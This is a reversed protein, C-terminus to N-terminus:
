AVLEPYIFVQQVRETKIFAAFEKKLFRVTTHYNMKSAAYPEFFQAAIENKNLSEDLYVQLQEEDLILLMRAGDHAKPNNHLKSTVENPPTTIISFSETIKGTDKNVFQNWIGGLYFLGGQKPYIFHPYTQGNYHYFEWYGDVPIICRRTYILDSHQWFVNECRSNLLPRGVKEQKIKKDWFKWTLTWEMNRFQLQGKDKILTTILPKAKGIAVPHEMFEYINEPQLTNIFTRYFLQALEDQPNQQLQKLLTERVKKTGVWYCM